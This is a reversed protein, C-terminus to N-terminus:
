ESWTCYTQSPKLNSIDFKFQANGYDFIPIEVMYQKSKRATNFWALGSLEVGSPEGKFMHGLYLYKGTDSSFAFIDNVENDDFKEYITCGNIGSCGMIGESLSFYTIIEPFDTECIAGKASESASVKDEPKRTAINIILSVEGYPSGIDVTNNSEISAFYSAKGRMEDIHKSYRWKKLDDNIPVSAVQVASAENGVDSVPTSTTSNPACACLLGFCVMMFLKKM